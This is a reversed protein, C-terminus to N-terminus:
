SKNSSTVSTLTIASTEQRELPNKDHWPIISMQESSVPFTILTM